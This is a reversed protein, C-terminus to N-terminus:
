LVGRLPAFSLAVSHEALVNPLVHTLIRVDVLSLQIEVGGVLFSVRADTEVSQFPSAAVYKVNRLGGAIPATM